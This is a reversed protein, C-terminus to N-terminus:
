GARMCAWTFIISHIIYMMEPLRHSADLEKIMLKTLLTNIIIAKICGWTFLAPHIVYMMKPLRHSANLEKMMPKTLLTNITIMCLVEGKRLYSDTSIHLKCKKEINGSQGKNLTNKTSIALQSLDSPRNYNIAAFNQYYHGSYDNLFCLLYYHGSYCHHCHPM